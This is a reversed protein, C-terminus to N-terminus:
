RPEAGDDGTGGASNTPEGLIPGPSTRIVPRLRTVVDPPPVKGASEWVHDPIHFLGARVYTSWDEVHSVVKGADPGSSVKGSLHIRMKEADEETVQIGNFNVFKFHELITKVEPSILERGRVERKGPALPEFIDDSFQGITVHSTGEGQYVFAEWGDDRLRRAYEAARHKRGYLDFNGVLVTYRAQALSLDYPTAPTPEPLPVALLIPFARQGNPRQVMSLRYKDEGYKKNKTPDTNTYLGYCVYAEQNNAVVFVDKLGAQKLEQELKAAGDLMPPRFEALLLTNPPVTDYYKAFERPLGAKASSSALRDSDGGGGPAGATTTDQVCGSMAIATLALVALIATLRKHRFPRPIHRM